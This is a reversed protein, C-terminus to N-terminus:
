GVARQPARAPESSDTEDNRGQLRVIRKMDPTLFLIGLSSIVTVTFLWIAGFAVAMEQPVGNPIFLLCYMGERVGLGNFLSIPLSAVINVFPVTAFIYSASIPAGLERAILVHMFLQITHFLASILTAKFFPAPHRPFAQEIRLIADSWKHGQPFFKVLLQPGVWWGCLLATLGGVSGLLMLQTWHGLAEPRILALTVTGITLLVVLGHVRDAVVTALAGARQGKPPNLLLGRAVDGGVTGFGFVNVFMGFFYARLIQIRSRHIGVCDVFVRWKMASLLQGFTYLVFILAMGRLSVSSLSHLLGKRDVTFYVFAALAISVTARIAMGVPSKRKPSRDSENLEESASLVQDKTSDHM